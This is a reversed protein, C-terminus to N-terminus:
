ISVTSDDQNGILSILLCFRSVLLSFNANLSQVGTFIGGREELVTM